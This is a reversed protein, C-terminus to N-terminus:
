KSHMEKNAAVLFSSIRSFEINAFVYNASDIVTDDGYHEIYAFVLYNSKRPNLNKLLFNEITSFNSDDREILLTMLFHDKIVNPAMRSIYDKINRHSTGFRKINSADFFVTFERRADLYMYDFIKRKLSWYPTQELADLDRM